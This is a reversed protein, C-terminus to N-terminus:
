IMFGMPGATANPVLLHVLNQFDGPLMRVVPERSDFARLGFVDPTISTDLDVVRPTSLDVLKDLNLDNSSQMRRYDDEYVRLPGDGYLIGMIYRTVSVM